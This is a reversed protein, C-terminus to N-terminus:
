EKVWKETLLETGTQVYVVYVGSAKSSMDFVVKNEGALVDFEQAVAIRGSMDAIRIAVTGDEVATWNVQLTNSGPNPVLILENVLPNSTVAPINGYVVETKDISLYANTSPLVLHVTPVAYAAPANLLKVTGACEDSGFDDNIRLKYLKNVNFNSPIAPYCEEYTLGKDENTLPGGFPGVAPCGAMTWDFTINSLYRKATIVPDNDDSTSGADLDLADIFWVDKNTPGNHDPCCQLEYLTIVGCVAVPPDCDDPCSGGCDVGEEDGNKIGDECTGDNCTNTPDDPCADEADCIGDM